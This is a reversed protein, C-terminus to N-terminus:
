PLDGDQLYKKVYRHLSPDINDIFQYDSHQSDLSIDKIDQKPEVHHVLNVTHRSPSNPLNSEEWFHSYIGFFQKIKVDIDLEKKAVRHVANEIKEGKYLRSGPWFWRNKAPKNKRKALLIKNKHELILEVSVEPMYKTFEAFLEESIYEDYVDM